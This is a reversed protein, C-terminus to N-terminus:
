KGGKSKSKNKKAQRKSVAEFLKSLLRTALVSNAGNKLSEGISEAAEAIHEARDTLRKLTNLLQIFKVAAIIALVLFVALASSLIIVLTQDATDMCTTTYGM